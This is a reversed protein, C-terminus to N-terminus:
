GVSRRSLANKVILALPVTFCLHSMIGGIVVAPDSYDPHNNSAIIIAVHM